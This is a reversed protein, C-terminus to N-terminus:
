KHICKELLFTANVDHMLREKAMKIAIESVDVGIWSRGMKDAVVLSTGSGCFFDAIVDGPKSACAIIRELLAEPKQTPYGLRENAQSNIIPIEWVDDIMDGSMEDLYQKRRYRGTKTKFVRG